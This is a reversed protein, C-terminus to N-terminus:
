GCCVLSAPMSPVLAESIVARGLGARAMKDHAARVDFAEWRAEHERGPVLSAEAVAYRRGPNDSFCLYTNHNTSGHKFPTAVESEGLPGNSITEHSRKQPVPSGRSSEDWLRARYFFAIYSLVFCASTRSHGSVLKGWLTPAPGALGLGVACVFQGPRGSALLVVGAAPLRALKPEVRHPNNTPGTGGGAYAPRRM